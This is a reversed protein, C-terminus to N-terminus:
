RDYVSSRQAVLANRNIAGAAVPPVYVAAIRDATSQRRRGAHTGHGAPRQRIDREQQRSGGGGCRGAEIIIRAHRRSVTSSKLLIIGPGERGLVNDGAALAIEAGDGVLWGNPVAAVLSGADVRRM